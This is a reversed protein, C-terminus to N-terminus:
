AQAWKVAPNAFQTELRDLMLGLQHSAAAALEASAPEGLFIPSQQDADDRLQATMHFRMSEILQQPNGQGHLVNHLLFEILYTQAILAASLNIDTM